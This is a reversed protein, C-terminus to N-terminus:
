LKSKLDYNMGTIAFGFQQEFFKKNKNNDMWFLQVAYNTNDYVNNSFLFFM